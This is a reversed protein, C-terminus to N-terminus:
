QQIPADGTKFVIKLGGMVAPVDFTIEADTLSIISSSMSFDYTGIQDGMGMEAKAKGTLSYVGDTKSLKADSVVFAGWTFSKLEVKATGNGNDSINIIEKETLNDTFYSCAALTYGNYKGVVDAVKIEEVIEEVEEKKKCSMAVIAVFCLLLIIKIKM